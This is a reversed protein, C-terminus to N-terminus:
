SITALDKISENSCFPYLFPITNYSLPLVVYPGVIAWNNRGLAFAIELFALKVARLLLGVLGLSLISGLRM